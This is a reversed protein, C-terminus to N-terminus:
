QPKQEGSLWATIELQGTFMARKFYTYYSRTMKGYPKCWIRHIMLDMQSIFRSDSSKVRCSLLELSTAANCSAFALTSCHFFCSAAYWPSVSLSLSWTCCGSQTSPTRVSRDATLLSGAPHRYSRMLLRSVVPLCVATFRNMNMDENTWFITM